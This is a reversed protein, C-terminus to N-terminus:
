DIEFSDLDSDSCAIVDDLNAAAMLESLGTLDELFKNNSATKMLLDFGSRAFEDLVLKSCATCQSFRETTPFTFELSSLSGRISHSTRGLIGESKEDAERSISAPANAGEPHQIM